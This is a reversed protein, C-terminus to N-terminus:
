ADRGVHRDLVLALEEVASRPRSEDPLSCPGPSISSSGLLWSATPPAASATATRTRARRSWAPRAPGACQSDLTDRHSGDLAAIISRNSDGPGNRTESTASNQRTETRKTWPRMALRFSRAHRTPRTSRMGADAARARASCSPASGALWGHFIGPALHALHMVHAVHALHAHRRAPCLRMKPACAAVLM